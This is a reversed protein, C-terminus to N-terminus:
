RSNCFPTSSKVINSDSTIIILKEESIM